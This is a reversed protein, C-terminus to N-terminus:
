EAENLFKDIIEEIGGEDNTKKTIYDAYKKVEEQANKMAIGIGAYKIMPLDNFGDGCCIINNNEIQLKKALVDIAISKSVNQSMIEIFFPDSRYISLKDGLINNLEIVKEKAVEPKATIICKYIPFNIENVFDKVDIIPMNCIRSEYEMYENHKTGAFVNKGHYTSLGLDNKNAFELLYPLYKNDLSNQFIIDGTLCNKVKAGNYSIVYGGNQHLKLNEAIFEIGAGPRGSALVVINGNEITEFIKNKTSELIKKESTLLTGDLDMVLMKKKM